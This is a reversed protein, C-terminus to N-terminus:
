FVPMLFATAGLIVAVFLVTSFLLLRYELPGSNTRFVFKLVLLKASAILAAVVFLVVWRRISLLPDSDVLSSTQYSVFASLWWWGHYEHPLFAYVVPFLMLNFLQAILTFAIAPRTPLLARSRVFRFDVIGSILSSLLM